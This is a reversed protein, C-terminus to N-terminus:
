CSKGCYRAVKCIFCRQLEKALKVEVCFDCCDASLNTFYPHKKQWANREAMRAKAYAPFASWRFADKQVLLEMVTTRQVRDSKPILDCGLNAIEEIAKVFRSVPSGFNAVKKDVVDPHSVETPYGSEASFALFPDPNEGLILAIPRLYFAAIGTADDITHWKLFNEDLCSIGNRIHAARQIWSMIEYDLWFM